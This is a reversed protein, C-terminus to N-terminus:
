TCFIPYEELVSYRIPYFHDLIPTLPSLSYPILPYTPHTVRISSLGPSQVTDRQVQGLASCLPFAIDGVTLCSQYSEASLVVSCFTGNM